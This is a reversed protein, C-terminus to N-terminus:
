AVISLRSHPYGRMILRQLLTLDLFVPVWDRDGTSFGGHRQCRRIRDLPRAAWRSCSRGMMTLPRHSTASSHRTVRRYPRTSCALHLGTTRGQNHSPCSLSLRGRYRITTTLNECFCSALPMDVECTYFRWGRHFPKASCVSVLHYRPMRGRAYNLTSDVPISVQYDSDSSILSPRQYRCFVSKLIVLNPNICRDQIM